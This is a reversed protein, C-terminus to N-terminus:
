TELSVPLDLGNEKLLKSRRAAKHDEAVMEACMEQATIAPVWGLKEKAKRPDGLLTEVESPRFYRPDIRVVVDGLTLAPTLDGEIAIVTGIENIGNGSFEITLGLERSTWTIFERVSYQFGTAIVFDEPVDQQLMMWQMRVYDKAHGWDRFSDINGM